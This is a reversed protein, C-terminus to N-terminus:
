RQVIEVFPTCLLGGWVIAGALLIQVSLLSIFRFPSDARRLRDTAFLGLSVFVVTAGFFIFLMTTGASILGPEAGIKWANTAVHAVHGAVEVSQWIASALCALAVVSWLRKM